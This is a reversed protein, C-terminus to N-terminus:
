ARCRSIRRSRALGPHRSACRWSARAPGVSEWARQQQGFRDRALEPAGCLLGRRGQQQRHLRPLRSTAFGGVAVRHEPEIGFGLSLRDAADRRRGHRGVFGHAGSLAHHLEVAEDDAALAVALGSVLQSGGVSWDVLAARRWLGPKVSRRPPAM